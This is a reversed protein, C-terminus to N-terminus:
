KEAEGAGQGAVRGTCGCGCASLVELEEETLEIVREDEM